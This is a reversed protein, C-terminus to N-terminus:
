SGWETADLEPLEITCIGSAIGDVRVRGDAGSYVAVPAGGAPTVVCRVNAVPLGEDDRLFVGVWDLDEFPASPPGFEPADLTRTTEPAPEFHATPTMWNRLLEIRLHGSWVARGLTDRLEDKTLLLTRLDLDMFRAVRTSVDMGTLEDYIELLTAATRTDSVYEHHVAFYVLSEVTDRGTTKALGAPEEANWEIWLRWERGVFDEVIWERQHPRGWM